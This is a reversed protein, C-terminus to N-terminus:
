QVDPAALPRTSDDLRHERRLPEDAHLREGPRGGGRDLVAVGAEDWLLPLVGVVRPHTVDLVPADAPLEPPPVPDRRPVALSAGLDVDLALRGARARRAPRIAELLVGVHEVGPARARQRREAGHA